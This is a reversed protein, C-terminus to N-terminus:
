TAASRWRRRWPPSTAPCRRRRRRARPRAGRWCRAAQSRALAPTPPTPHAPRPSVPLRPLPPAPSCPPLRAPSCAPQAAWMVGPLRGGGFGLLAGLTEGCSIPTRMVWAGAALLLPSTSVWLVSHALSTHQLGWVWAGFHVALCAGSAALWRMALLARAKDEPELRRHQAVAGPLLVLATLQLRWAALTLAPVERMESFVTAASSVALV